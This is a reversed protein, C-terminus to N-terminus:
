GLHSRAMKRRKVFRRAWGTSDNVELSLRPVASGFSIM